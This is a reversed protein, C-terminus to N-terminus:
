NSKQASHGKVEYKYLEERELIGKERTFPLVGRKERYGQLKAEALLCLGVKLESQRGSKKKGWIFQLCLYQCEWMATM